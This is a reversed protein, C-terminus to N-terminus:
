SARLMRELAVRAWTATEADVTVINCPTGELISDLVYLLHRITTMGMTKCPSRRLPVVHRDTFQRGLRDVLHWETGVVITSGVPAREIYEIIGTTSGTADSRAVVESSCEPHVIVLAGPYQSRAADVDEPKFSSHVYCFGPWVVVRCAALAAVDAGDRDWMGIQARPIGMALATNTGLYQDPMFLIHGKQAFAWRFLKDANSSTCVAGGRQGVVAKLEAISNQYTIPILDDGWLGTLAAWAQEGERANAMAAMPCFAELVPQIVTQEPKCLIAATEAMFFVGCFVIYKSTTKAAQQSLGLSDGRQDAFQIVEDRQYHHGLITLDAGLTQKARRIAALVQDDTMDAYRAPLESM